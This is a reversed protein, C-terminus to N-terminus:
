TYAERRAGFTSLWPNEGSCGRNQAAREKMIRKALALFIAGEKKVQSLDVGRSDNLAVFACFATCPWSIWTEHPDYADVLALLM